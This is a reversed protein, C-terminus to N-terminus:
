AYRLGVFFAAMFSAKMPFNHTLLNTFKESIFAGSQHGEANNSARLAEQRRSYWGAIRAWPISVIGNYSLLQLFVFIGGAFFLVMKGIKGVFFGSALGMMSGFSLQAPDFWRALINGGTGAKGDVDDFDPKDVPYSGPTSSTAAACQYPQFVPSSLVGYSLLAYTSLTGATGWALRRPVSLSATKVNSIAQPRFATRACSSFLFQSPASFLRSSSRFASAM